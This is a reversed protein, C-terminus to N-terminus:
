KVEKLELMGSTQGSISPHGKLALSARGELNRELTEKVNLQIEASGKSNLIAKDVPLNIADLKSNGFLDVNLSTSEGALTIKTNGQTKLSFQTTKIKVVNIEENGQANLSFQNATVNSLNIQSNGQSTLNELGNTHIELTLPTSPAASGDPYAIQIAQKGGEVKLTNIFPDDGTITVKTKQFSADQQITVKYSGKLSLASTLPLDVSRTAATGNSAVFTFALGLLYRLPFLQSKM